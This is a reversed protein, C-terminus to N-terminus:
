IFILWRHHLSDFFAFKFLLFADRQIVKLVLNFIRYLLLISFLQIHHFHLRLLLFSESFFLLLSFTTAASRRDHYSVFTFLM